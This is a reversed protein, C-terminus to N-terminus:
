LLCQRIAATVRDSVFPLPLCVKNSYARERHGYPARNRQVEYGNLAAIQCALMRSEEREGKGTCIRTATRFMNRVVARKVASPHASKAQIIINKSSGKRYWKVRYQSNSVRIQTNLFPLWRECPVERTFKIYQSLSNLINFLEDMESQTATVVCCTDIYRCYMIPLREIVPREIKSMFCIALAPALRQGM